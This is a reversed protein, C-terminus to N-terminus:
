NELASSCSVSLSTLSLNVPIISEEKREGDLEHAHTHWVKKLPSAASLSELRGDYEDEDLSETHAQTMEYITDTIM